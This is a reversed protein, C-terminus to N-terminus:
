EDGFVVRGGTKEAAEKAARYARPDKSQAKPIVVDGEGAGGGGGGAGENGGAGIGSANTGEFLPKFDRDKRMTEVFEDITMNETSGDRTSLLPNGNPGLVVVNFGSEADGRLEASNLVHPLLARVNGRHKALAATASSEIKEKRLAGLLKEGKGRESELDGKLKKEVQAVADDIRAKIANEDGGKGERLAKLEDLASKLEDVSGLDSYGSLGSLKGNYEEAKKRESSLAERLAGVNEFSWGNGGEVDLYFKGDPGKKFDSETLKIDNIGTLSELIGKIAM